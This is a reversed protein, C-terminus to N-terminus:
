LGGKTACVRRPEVSVVRAAFEEITCRFSEGIHPADAGPLILYSLTTEKPDSFIAQVQYRFGQATRYTLHETIDRAQM